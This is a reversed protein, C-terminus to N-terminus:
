NGSNLGLADNITDFLERADPPLMDPMAKQLKAIQQSGLLGLLARTENGNALPVMVTWYNWKDIDAVITFEMGRWEVVVTDIGEAERQAPAKPDDDVPQEATHGNPMPAAATAVAQRSPTRKAPAKRAHTTM